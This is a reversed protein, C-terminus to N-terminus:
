GEKGEEGEGRSLHIIHEVGVAHNNLLSGQGVEVLPKAALLSCSCGGPNLAWSQSAAAPGAAFVGAAAPHDGPGRPARAGAAPPPVM